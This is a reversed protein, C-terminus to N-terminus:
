NSKRVVKLFKKREVEMSEEEGSESEEEQSSEDEDEESSGTSISAGSIGRAQWKEFAEDTPIKYRQHITKTDWCEKVPKHLDIWDPPGASESGQATNHADILDKWQAVHYRRLHWMRELVRGALARLKWFHSTRNVPRNLEQIAERTMEMVEYCNRYTSAYVGVYYKMGTGPVARKYPVVRVDLNKMEAELAEGFDLYIWTTDSREAEDYIYKSQVGGFTGVAAGGFTSSAEQYHPNDILFPQLGFEIGDLLSIYGSTLEPNWTFPTRMPYRHSMLLDNVEASVSGAQSFISPHPFECKGCFFCGSSCGYYVHPICAPCGCTKLGKGDEGDRASTHM